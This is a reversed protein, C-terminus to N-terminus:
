IHILSLYANIWYAIKDAESWNSGPPTNSLLTLYEEMKSQEEIFGKYNVQGGDTVHKRLLATWIEHNVLPSSTKNIEGLNVANGKMKKMWSLSNLLIDNINNNSFKMYGFLSFLLLIFLYIMYKIKTM